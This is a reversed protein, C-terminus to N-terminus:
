WISGSAAVNIGFRDDQRDHQGINASKVAMKAGFEELRPELFCWLSGLQNWVPGGPAMSAWSPETMAWRLRLKRDFQGWSPSM